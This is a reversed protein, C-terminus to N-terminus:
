RRALVNLHLVLVTVPGLLSATEGAVLPLWDDPARPSIASLISKFESALHAFLKSVSLVGSRPLLLAAFSSHIEIDTAAPFSHRRSAPAM